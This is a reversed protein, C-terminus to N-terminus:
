WSFVQNRQLQSAGPMSAGNRDREILSGTGFNYRAGLSFSSVENDTGFDDQDSTHWGGFMSIGNSFQYEGNIGYVTGDQENNVGGFDFNYYSADVGVSLNDSVFYTGSASLGNTEEDSYQRDGGFFAAGAFTLRNLYIAGEAGLLYSNQEGTTFGGFGGFAYAENRVFAHVVATGFSDTHTDHNMEQMSGDFQLNWNGSLSTVVSGSLDLYDEKGGDLDDDLTNYSFAVHGSTEAAAVGPAVIALAAAAGLLVKKM